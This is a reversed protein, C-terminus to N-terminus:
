VATGYPRNEPPYELYGLSRAFEMMEMGRKWFTDQIRLYTHLDPYDLMIMENARKFQNKAELLAYDVLVRHVEEVMNGEEV